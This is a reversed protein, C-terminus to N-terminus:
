EHGYSDGKIAILQRTQGCLTRPLGFRPLISSDCFRTIATIWGGQLTLVMLGHAHAIPSHGICVYCGFAPQTNARTPVLEYRRDGRRGFRDALYATVESGGRREVPEPPMAFWVDDRLLAVLTEIDATEFASAFRGALEREEPSNPLPAHERGRAPLRDDLTSRARKLASTVSDETTQLIAAAESASYGLVDRLLLTARQRPPLHQLAAVFALEIAEKVEYRAEPGPATDPLGELLFDPYPELWVPVLDHLSGDPDRPPAPDSVFRSPRRGSARLANLCQNTAIRYLWSRLASRSEFRGLGRWAAVLTEQLADEADQASGLIRYCHLRLESHFPDILARFAVEDGDRARTLINETM